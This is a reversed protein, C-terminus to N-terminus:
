ESSQFELILASVDDPLDSTDALTLLEWKIAELLRKGSRDHHRRVISALGADDLMGGDPDPCETLGDSYMLLREGPGLTIECDEYEAQEVLGIPLGGNGLLRVGGDNTILAPHPHGAQCFVVKRTVVNVEAIAITFYHETDMEAMFLDNLKRCTESPRLMSVTDGTRELAVNSGPRNGSLWSALRATILASAIGHGSVDLSFVGIRDPAFRIEGVLDGGIHGSPRLMYSMVADGLRTTDKPVLSMQLKRAEVLDRNLVENIARMEELTETVLRNKQTLEREISLLREGAQLRGRLEESSVPKSLFDDAGERLARALEGKESKSTLVIFYIYKEGQLARLEACLDLGSKGPMVWDSLVIDPPSRRCIELAAEASDAETVEYRTDNLASLLLRRQLRSDDVVLLKLAEGEERRYPTGIPPLLTKNM